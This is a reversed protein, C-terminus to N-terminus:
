HIMGDGSDQASPGPNQQIKTGGKHWEEERQRAERDSPSQSAPLADRDSGWHQGSEFGTSEQLGASSEAERVSAQSFPNSFPRIRAKSIERKDPKLGRCVDLSSCDTHLHM